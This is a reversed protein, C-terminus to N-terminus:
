ERYWREGFEKLQQSWSVGRRPPLDLKTFLSINLGVNRVARQQNKVNQTRCAVPKEHAVQRFDLTTPV